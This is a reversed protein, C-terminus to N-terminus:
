LMKVSIGLWDIGVGHKQVSVNTLHVFMNDLESVSSNYRVTCFRCFGLQYRAVVVTVCWDLSSGECIHRWHDIPPWWYMYDSTLNRGELWYHIRLTALSSMPKKLTHYVPCHPSCTILTALTETWFCPTAISQSPIETLISYYCEYSSYWKMTPFPRDM